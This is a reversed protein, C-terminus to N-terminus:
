DHLIACLKTDMKCIDFMTCHRVIFHWLYSHLSLLVTSWLFQVIRYVISFTCVSLIKKQRSRSCCFLDCVTENSLSEHRLWRRLSKKAIFISALIQWSKIFRVWRSRRQIRLLNSEFTRTGCGPLCGSLKCSYCRCQACKVYIHLSLLVSFSFILHVVSCCAVVMDLRQCQSGCQSGIKLHEALWYLIHSDVSFLIEQAYPCWIDQYIHSMFAILTGNGDIADSSRVTCYLHSLSM